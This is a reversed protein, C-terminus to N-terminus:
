RDRADQLKSGRRSQPDEVDEMQDFIAENQNEGAANVFVANRSIIEAQLQRSIVRPNSRRMASAQRQQSARLRFFALM